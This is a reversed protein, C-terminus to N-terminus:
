TSDTSRNNTSTNDEGHILRLQGAASGYTTMCFQQDDQSMRNPMHPCWRGHISMEDRCGGVRNKHRHLYPGFIQRISDRHEALDLIKSANDHCDRVLFFNYCKAILQGFRGSQNASHVNDAPLGIPAQNTTLKIALAETCAQLCRAMFDSTASDPHDTSAACGGPNGIRQQTVSHRM